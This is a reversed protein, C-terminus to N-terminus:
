ATSGWLEVLNVGYNALGLADGLVRKRRGGVQSNFPEPYSSGTKVDVTEPDLAPRTTM